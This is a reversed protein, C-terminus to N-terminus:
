IQGQGVTCGGVDGPPGPPAKIGGSCFFFSVFIVTVGKEKVVLVM